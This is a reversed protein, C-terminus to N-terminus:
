RMSCRIGVTCLVWRSPQCAPTCKARQSSKGYRSVLLTYIRLRTHVHSSSTDSHTSSCVILIDRALATIYWCTSLIINKYAQGASVKSYRNATIVEPALWCATGVGGTMTIDNGSNRGEGLSTLLFIPRSRTPLNSVHLESRM